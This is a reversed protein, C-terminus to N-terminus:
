CIIVNDLSSLWFQRKIIMITSTIYEDVMNILVFIVINMLKLIATLAIETNKLAYM